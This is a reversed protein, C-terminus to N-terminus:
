WEYMDGCKLCKILDFNCNIDVIRQHTTIGCVSCRPRDGNSDQKPAQGIKGRDSKLTCRQPPQPTM